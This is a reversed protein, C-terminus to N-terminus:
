PTAESATSPTGTNGARGNQKAHAPERNAMSRARSLLEDRAQACCADLREHIDATEGARPPIRLEVLRREDSRQGRDSDCVPM